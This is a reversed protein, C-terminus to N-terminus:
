QLVLGVRQGPEFPLLGIEALVLGWRQDHPSGVVAVHGLVGGAGVVVVDGVGLQVEEVASVPEQFGVEVLDDGQDAVEEVADLWRVLRPRRPSRTPAEFEGAHREQWLCIVSDYKDCASVLASRM